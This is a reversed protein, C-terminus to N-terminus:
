LEALSSACSAICHATEKRLLCPCVLPGLLLVYRVAIPQQDFDSVIMPRDRICAINRAEPDLMYCLLSCLWQDCGEFHRLCMHMSESGSLLEVCVRCGQLLRLLIM